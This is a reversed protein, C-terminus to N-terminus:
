DSFDHSWSCSQIHAPSCDTCLAAANMGVYNIPRM